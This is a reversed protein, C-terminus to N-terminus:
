QKQCKMKKENKKDYWRKKINKSLDEKTWTKQGIIKQKHKKVYWRTNMNKSMDVKTWKKKVDKTKM